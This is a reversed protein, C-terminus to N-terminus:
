NSCLNKERRNAHNAPLWLFIAFTAARNFRVVSHLRDDLHDRSAASRQAALDHAVRLQLFLEAEDFDPRFLGPTRMAPCFNVAVAIRVARDIEFPVAPAVCQNAAHDRLETVLWVRDDAIENIVQERAMLAANKRNVDHSTRPLAFLAHAHMRRGRFNRILLIM